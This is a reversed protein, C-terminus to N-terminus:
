STANASEGPRAGRFWVEMAACRADGEAPAWAAFDQPPPAAYPGRKVEFLVTGPQLSAMTHWAGAPIELCRVPGAADLEARETVAGADDFVLVAASGSLVVLLEWVGAAAHRHPRVYTGPEFANCLRQVPDSLEAHVNLNKRRRPSAAAEASLRRLDDATIRKM